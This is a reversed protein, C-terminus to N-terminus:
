FVAAGTKLVGPKYGLTRCGTMSTCAGLRPLQNPNSKGFYEGENLGVSGRLARDWPTCHGDFRTTVVTMRGRQAGSRDISPETQDVWVFRWGVFVGGASRGIRFLQLLVQVDLLHIGVVVELDAAALARALVPQGALVERIQRSAVVPRGREVVM